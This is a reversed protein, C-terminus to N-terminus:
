PGIDALSGFRVYKSIKEVRHYRDLDLLANQMTAEDQAKKAVAQDLQAQFPRPDIRVLLDGAKVIQGEQFAVKIIPGDVRSRILVTNIPQVTGLSDLYVPFSTRDARITQV